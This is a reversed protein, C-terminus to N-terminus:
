PTAPRTSAAKETEIPQKGHKAPMTAPAAVQVVSGTPVIYIEVRRNQSQGNEGSNDAV